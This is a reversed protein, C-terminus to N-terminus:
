LIEKLREQPFLLLNCYSVNSNFDVYRYGPKNFFFFFPKSTQVKKINYNKPLMSMLENSNSLSNRTQTSFEMFIIPRYEFITDKLGILVNKEFGEVDIKILDLKELRLKSIYNDANVVPLKGFFKNNDKAYLTVFSGTGTNSGTPMFYDLECDKDGLGVNHVVINSIGNHRINFELQRRVPEYPEFAHICSCYKSMFLSHQGVNSGIDIFISRSKNQILDRLLFLEYKEYAGYFYIVWDLYSNLNGKYRFGFFNVEFDHSIGPKYFICIIRDRIGYRIWDQHGLLQLLGLLLNKKM